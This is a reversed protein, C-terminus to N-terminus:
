SEMHPDTIYYLDSEGDGQNLIHQFTTLQRDPDGKIIFDECINCAIKTAEVVACIAHQIVQLGEWVRQCRGEADTM